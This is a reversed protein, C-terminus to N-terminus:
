SCYRYQNPKTPCPVGSSKQRVRGGEGEWAGAGAGRARGTEFFKGNEQQVPWHYVRTKCCSLVRLVAISRDTGRGRGRGQGRGRGRRRQCKGKKGVFRGPSSFRQHGEPLRLLGVRLEHGRGVGGETRGLPNVHGGQSAQEGFPRVARTRPELCTPQNSEIKNQRTGNPRLHTKVCPTYM